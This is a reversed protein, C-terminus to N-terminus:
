PKPALSIAYGLRDLIYIATALTALAAIFGGGWRIWGELKGVREGINKIENEARTRLEKIDNRLERVDTQLNNLAQMIWQETRLSTQDSGSEDTDTAKGAEDQTHDSRPM